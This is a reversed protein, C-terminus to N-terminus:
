FFLFFDRLWVIDIELEEVVVHFLIYYFMFNYNKGLFGFGQPLNQPSASFTSYLLAHLESSYSRRNSFPPSVILYFCSRALRSLIHDQGLRLAM